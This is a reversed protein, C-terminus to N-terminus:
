YIFYYKLYFILLYSCWFVILISIDRTNDYKYVMTPDTDSMNQKQKQKQKKNLTTIKPKNTKTRHITDLIALTESHDM